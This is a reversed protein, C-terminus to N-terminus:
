FDGGVQFKAIKVQHALERSALQEPTLKPLKAAAVKETVKFEEKKEEIM